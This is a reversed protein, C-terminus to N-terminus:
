GRQLHNILSQAKYQTCVGIRRLGSNGCNSLVFDIIRFTGDFSVAPRARRDTLQALRAGRGGALVIAM